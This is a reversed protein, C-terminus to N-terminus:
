CRNPLFAPATSRHCKQKAEAPRRLLVATELHKEGAVKLAPIVENIICSGM